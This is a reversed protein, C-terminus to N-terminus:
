FPKIFSNKQKAIWLFILGLALCFILSQLSSQPGFKGGTLFDAGTIKSVFLTKDSSLSPNIGGYIAPEALDWSFHLFIPFWLNRAFIYAAPLLIGAQAVTSLVSLITAGKIGSHMVGFLFTSIMLAILTGLNEEMLRFFVGLILIEAVFGATLATILGPFLFSFPNVHLIFYGGSLYIVLIILSQLILGTFFGLFANKPFASLSLEDVKRKEFFRFLFVYIIVTCFIQVFSIVANKIVDDLQTKDLLLRGVWEIFVALGVILAIGIIIKTLFFYLIKQSITQSRSYNM